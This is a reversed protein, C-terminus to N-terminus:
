GKCLDLIAIWVGERDELFLNGVHHFTDIGRSNRLGSGIDFGQVIVRVSHARLVVPDASFNTAFGSALEGRRGDLMDVSRDFFGGQASVFCTTELPASVKVGM